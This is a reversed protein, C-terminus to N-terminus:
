LGERKGAIKQGCRWEVDAREKDEKTRTERTDLKTDDSYNPQLLKRRGM